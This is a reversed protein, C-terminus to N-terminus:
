LIDEMTRCFMICMSLVRFDALDATFTLRTNLLRVWTLKKFHSRTKSFGTEYTHM